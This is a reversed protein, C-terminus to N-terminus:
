RGGAVVAVVLLAVGLSVATLARLSRPAAGRDGAARDAYLRRGRVLAWAAGVAPVAAALLGLPESRHLAHVAILGAIVALSLGSRQWALATREASLSTRESPM